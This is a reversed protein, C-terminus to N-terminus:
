LNKGGGKVFFFMQKEFLSIATGHGGRSVSSTDSACVSSCTTGACGSLLIVDSIAGQHTVMCADECAGNGNCDGFCSLLAFCGPNNYCGCWTDPCNQSACNTCSDGLSPCTVPDGGGSGSSSSGTSSSGTSSSGTSSGGSGPGGAGSGPAGAGSGAAGSGPAGAGSGPGGAGSGPGGAGEQDADGLWLGGRGCAVLALGFVLTSLTSIPRSM